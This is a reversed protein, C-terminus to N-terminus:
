RRRSEASGKRGLDRDAATRVVANAYREADKQLLRPSRFFNLMDGSYELWVCVQYQCRATGYLGHWSWM